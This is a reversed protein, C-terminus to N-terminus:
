GGGLLERADRAALRLAEDLHRALRGGANAVTGKGGAGGGIATAARELVARAPRGLDPSVAAVMRARGGSEVGLVVVGPRRDLVSSALSRLEDPEVSVRQVALWGQGVRKALGALRVAEATLEERRARELVRRAEALEALRRRLRDPAGDPETDLLAALETLLAHERAHHALADAGTLAEIRRLGAGISSEGILHLPGAQSGHGVHTGGCLERSVEGIDVVRVREGYREGFLAIAGASEAEARDAHWVRVEPDALLHENVRDQIEPLCEVPGYHAFDLRLRGADVLSGRQVAHEGLLRRLVAHLVHTATHSRAIAARREGDVVAEAAGPVVEGSVVRAVHLHGPRTDEVALVAGDTRIKGTDGVQGGGQAYFPSRDLVLEVVDGEVAAPVPVGERLIQRIRTEARTADYGVFVTETV